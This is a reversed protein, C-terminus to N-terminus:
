RRSGRNLNDRTQQQIGKIKDGTINHRQPATISDSSRQSRKLYDRKGRRPESRTGIVANLHRSDDLRRRTASEATYTDHGRLRSERRELELNERRFDRLLRQKEEKFDKELLMKQRSYDAPQEESLKRVADDFKQAMEDKDKQYKLFLAEKEHATESILQERSPGEGAAEQAAAPATFILMAIIIPPLTKMPPM